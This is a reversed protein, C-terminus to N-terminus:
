RFGLLSMFSSGYFGSRFEVLVGFRFGLGRVGSRRFGVGRFGLGRFGTKHIWSGLGRFGVFGM